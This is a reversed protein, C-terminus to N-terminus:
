SKKAGKGKGSKASHVLFRVDLAASLPKGGSGIFDVDLEANLGGKRHALGRLKKPLRLTFRQAGGAKAGRHASSVRRPKSRQGLRAKAKARVTGAGPLGVVLRVRGDRLSSASATMRWLPNVSIQSPRRSIATEDAASAPPSVVTFVDPAENADGEVLNFAKSAFAILLGDGSYSPNQEQFAGGGDEWSQKGGGPLLREITEADLDAQFMEPGGGVGSALPTVLTPPALPYVQRATTFAIRDGDSSIACNLIPGSSGIFESKFPANVDPAGPVPNVWQTLRRVAQRRSLGPAMNVVFLDGDEDPNGVFAAIEGDHDLQPVTLGWGLGLNEGVSPVTRETTLPFPGQCDPNSLTEEAACGPALPDGGGVMRRIPPHPELVTPVRRWLPEHYETSQPRDTSTRAEVVRVAAAEEPLMPVQEPLRRGVWAVTSGDGSIAAGAEGATASGGGPVPGGGDRKETILITEDTGLRRVAVQGAPTALETPDGTLDSPAKVLFVVSRGDESIAVDGTAIAGFLAPDVPEAERYTLGCPAESTEPDCGNLASALEYTPPTADLDAVYVDLSGPQVDDEPDLPVKTTFAVYRGDGSISPRVTSLEEENPVELALVIAGTHLNKRFLGSRGGLRGVFAVFEGNGSLAPAFAEDAQEKTSKSVLEIPGFEASASAAFIGAAVAFVALVLLLPRPSRVPSV